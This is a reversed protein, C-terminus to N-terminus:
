GANGDAAKARAEGQGCAAPRRWERRKMDPPPSKRGRLAILAASRSAHETERCTLRGCLPRSTRPISRFQESDLHTSDVPRCQWELRYCVSHALLGSCQPIETGEM